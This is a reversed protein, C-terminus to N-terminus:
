APRFSYQYDVMVAWVVLESWSGGDGLSFPAGPVMSRDGSGDIARVACRRGGTRVDTGKVTVGAEAPRLAERLLEGVTINRWLLEESCFEGSPGDGCNRDLDLVGEVRVRGSLMADVLGSEGVGEGAM